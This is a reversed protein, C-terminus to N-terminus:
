LNPINHVERLGNDLVNSHFTFSKGKFFLNSKEGCASVIDLKNYQIWPDNVNKLNLENRM